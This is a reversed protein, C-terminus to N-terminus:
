LREMTPANAGTGRIGSSPTQTKDPPLIVTSSPCCFSFMPSALCEAALSAVKGDKLKGGLPGRKAMSGRSGAFPHQKRGGGGDPAAQMGIPREVTVLQAIPDFHFSNTAPPSRLLKTNCANDARSGGGVSATSIPERDAGQRPSAFFVDRVRKRGDAVPPPAMHPPLAGAVVQDEPVHKEPASCFTSGGGEGCEQVRRGDSHQYTSPRQEVWPSARNSQPQM